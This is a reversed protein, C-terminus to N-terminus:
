LIWKTFSPSSYNATIAVIIGTRNSQMAVASRGNLIRGVQEPSSCLSSFLSHALGWSIGGGRYAARQPGVGAWVRRVGQKWYSNAVHINM